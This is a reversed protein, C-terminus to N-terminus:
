ANFTTRGFNVRLALGSRDSIYSVVYKRLRVNPTSFIAVAAETRIDRVYDDFNLSVDSVYLELCIVRDRFLGCSRSEDDDTVGFARKTVRMKRSAERLCEHVLATPFFLLPPARFSIAFISFLVSASLFFLLSLSRQTLLLLHSPARCHSFDLGLPLSFLRFM